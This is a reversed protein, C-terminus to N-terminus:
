QKPEPRYTEYHHIVEPNEAVSPQPAQMTPTTPQQIPQSPYHPAAQPYYYHPRSNNYGGADRAGALYFYRILFAILGLLLLLILWGWWSGLLMGAGFASAGLAGAQNLVSDIELATVSEARKDVTDNTKNDNGSFALTGDIGIVDGQQASSLIQLIFNMEGKEAKESKGIDVYIVENNQEATITGKSTMQVKTHEPLTIRLKGDELTRNCNNKWEVAYTVSQQEIVGEQNNTINLDLCSGDGNGNGGGTNVKINSDRIIKAVTTGTEYTKTPITTFDFTKQDIVENEIEKIPAVYAKTKFSLIKGYVKQGCGVAMMRYFYQGRANNLANRHEGSYNGRFVEETVVSLNKPSKGVEMYTVTDSCGRANYLGRITATNITVDTAPLTSVSPLRVQDVGGKQTPDIVPIVPTVPIVAKPGFTFSRVSGQERVVNGNTDTYKGCARYYYVTGPTNTLGEAEGFFSDGNGLNYKRTTNTDSTCSPSETYRSYVLYGEVNSKGNTSGRLTASSSAIDGERISSTFVEFTGGNGGTYINFNGYYPSQIGNESCVTYNIVTGNPYNYNSNNFYVSPNGGTTTSGRENYSSCSPNRNPSWVIYTGTGSCGSGSFTSTQGTQPNANRIDLNNANCSGCNNGTCNNNGITFSDVGSTVTPLSAQMDKACVKYYFTTGNAYGSTAINGDPANTTIFGTSNSTDCSLNNSTGYVIWTRYSTCNSVGVTGSVYISNGTVNGGNKPNTIQPTLVCTNGNNNTAVSFSKTDSQAGQPYNDAEACSRYHYTTGAIANITEGSNIKGQTASTGTIDCAPNGTTNWVIWVNEGDCPTTAGANATITTAGAQNATGTPGSVTPTLECVTTAAVETVRFPVDISITNAGSSGVGTYWIYRSLSEINTISLAGASTVNPISLNVVDSQQCTDGANNWYQFVKCYTGNISSLYVKNGSSSTISINQTVNDVSGNITAFGKVALTASTKATAQTSPINTIQVGVNNASVNASNALFIRIYIIEGDSVSISTETPDLNLQSGNSVGIDKYHGSGASYDLSPISINAGPRPVAIQGSQSTNNLYTGAGAYVSSGVFSLITVLALLTIHIRSKM